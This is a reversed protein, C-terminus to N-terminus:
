MKPRSSNCKLWHPWIISRVSLYLYSHSMKFPLQINSHRQTYQMLQEMQCNLVVQVCSPSKSKISHSNIEIVALVCKKGVLFDNDM